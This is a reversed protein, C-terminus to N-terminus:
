AVRFINLYKIQMRELVVNCMGKLNKIQITCFCAGALTGNKLDRGELNDSKLLNETNLAM